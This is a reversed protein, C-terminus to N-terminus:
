KSALVQAARRLAAMAVFSAVDTYGAERAANELQRFQDATLAFTITKMTQTYLM